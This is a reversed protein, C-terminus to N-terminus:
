EASGARYRVSVLEASFLGQQSASLREPQSFNGAKNSVPINIIMNV